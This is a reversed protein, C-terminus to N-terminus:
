TSGQKAFIVVMEFTHVDVFKIWLADAFKIWLADSFKIWLADSFKIWLMRNIIYSGHTQIHVVAQWAALSHLPKAVLLLFSGFPVPLSLGFVGVFMADKTDSKLTRLIM